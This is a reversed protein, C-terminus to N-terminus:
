GTTSQDSLRDSGTAARVNPPWRKALARLELRMGPLGEAILDAPEWRERLAEGEPGIGVVLQPEGREVLALAAVLPLWYLGMLESANPRLQDREHEALIRAFVRQIEFDRRGDPYSRESRITLLTSVEEPVVRLGVEEQAERMGERWTEGASLHGAVGIDVKGPALDKTLARRQFLVAGRQDVLWLHIAAHWDGVRHVADRAKREGSAQGDPRLVDFLESV